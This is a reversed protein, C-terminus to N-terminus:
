AGPSSRRDFCQPASTSCSSLRLVATVFDFRATDYPIRGDVPQVRMQVGELNLRGAALMGPSPDCGSAQAFDNRLLGLLEGKGCGLDLYTLKRSDIQRRRFYERILDRKRLQFFESTGNTFGDRIPNRLLEEHAGSLVNFEPEVQSM